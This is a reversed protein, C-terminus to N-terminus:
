PIRRYCNWNPYNNAKHQNNEWHLPQLNNLADTGNKSVPMIHDIEWGYSGGRGYDSYKILAGCTDRKYDEPYGNAPAAKAWVNNVRNNDFLGGNVNTNRGRMM